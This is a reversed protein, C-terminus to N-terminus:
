IYCVQAMRDKELKLSEQFETEKRQKDEEMKSVAQALDHLKREMMM